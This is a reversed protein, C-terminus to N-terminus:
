PVCIEKQEIWSSDYGKICKWTALACEFVNWARAIEEQTWVHIEVYGPHTRSVFINACVNPRLNLGRHYASLQWDQDYALRKEEWPAMDKSKHDVVIGASPSHLDVKGGYGLPSAFATEAIWDNVNPFAEYLKERVSKVHGMYALTVPLGKFSAEIADHIRTGEEAAQIAQQKSDDLVRALYSEDTEGSLRPLTLAALIGQKVKWETLASKNLVDLVTTVSPVLALQRADKLTTDREKGNKGVITYRPTGDREYWHSM